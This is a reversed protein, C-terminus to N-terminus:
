ESTSFNQATLQIRQHSLLTGENFIKIVFGRISICIAIDFYNAKCDCDSNIFYTFSLDPNDWRTIPLYM